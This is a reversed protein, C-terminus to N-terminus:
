QPRSETLVDLMAAIEGDPLGDYRTPRYRMQFAIMVNTTATDLTGNQPVAYGFQALKRQFWAVDPVAADFVERKQRVAAENPWLILGEDAFRKWPFHPGPDTRRQPAIDSHGLVRTPAINHRAIIDKCLALVVDMQAKSFPQYGAVRTGLNSIEIGISSANLGAANVWSSLGAHFAREREDVLQYVVPAPDDSVLYHSSVPGTTLYRLSAEHTENTFHLILFQARSDQSKATYTRDVAVGPTFNTRVQSDAKAGGRPTSACGALVVLALGIFVLNQRVM